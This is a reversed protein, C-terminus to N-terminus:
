QAGSPMAVYMPTRHWRGGIGANPLIYDATTVRFGTMCIEVYLVFELLFQAPDGNGLLWIVLYGSSACSKRKHMNECSSHLHFQASDEGGLLWVVM